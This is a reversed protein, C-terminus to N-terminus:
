VRRVSWIAEQRCSTISLLETSFGERRLVTEFLAPTYRLSFFLRLPEEIKPSFRHGWREFPAANKWSAFALFAPIGELEGIKVQPPGVLSELDWVQLAATLWALTEPNDYQPLVSDMAARVEGPNETRVPALHASALVVDGPRLVAHLLRIVASPIFNPVMGFFTIVRPLRNEMGGLWNELFSTETLDCVLSRRHGAGAEMLKGTSELVLDHSVDIASFLVECGEAKLSTLLGLEKMGTGCGLGVLLMKQGELQDAVRAFADRYIRAFEPNAHIPSHKLFVRRWLEAQRPTVYLFKPDIRNAQLAEIADGQLAQEPVLPYFDIVPAPM